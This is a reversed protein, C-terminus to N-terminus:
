INRRFVKGMGDDYVLAAYLVHFVLLDGVYCGRGVGGEGGDACITNYFM